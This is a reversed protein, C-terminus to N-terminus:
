FQFYIFSAVDYAGGWIGFLLISLTAAFTIIVKFWDDQALLTDSLSVKWERLVSIALLIVVAILLLVINPMNLGVDVGSVYTWNTFAYSIMHVAKEVSEARFFLWAFSTLSFTVFCQLLKYSQTNQNIHLKLFMKEKVPALLAGFVQYIGHIGGWLVFHWSAGHWLGSALFTIMLNFYKRVAGCRSGGLPIYLYDRFWTSLSIHWRHWFDKISTALYPQRFNDMLEVGLVKATGIAIHSYGSFDCYIQLTFGLIALVVRVGGMASYDNFITDVYVAVRDAIVIKEFFGFLMLWFGRLFEEVNFYHPKRIQKLLNTSREIPGAVLQPFFSVFVAYYIINKEAKIQSRYVDVTYSLAQFTYFSIGVPLIIDFPMRLNQNTLMSINDLIFGGYKFFALIGINATFSVAVICKKSKQGKDSNEDVYKDSFYEIGLGSLYTIVTSAALLLAYRPNWCMYFFYSSLFLLVYQYKKPILCYYMVVIIIFFLIFNISNFLM